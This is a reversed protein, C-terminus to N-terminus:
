SEEETFRVAAAARAAEEADVAMWSTVRVGDGQFLEVTVGSTAADYGSARSKADEIEPQLAEVAAAFEEADKISDWRSDLHLVRGDGKALLVYRDGGWGSAADNTFRLGLIGILSVKMGLREEFPTTLLAAYLEGFTDERLVSWGRPLGGADCVVRRPEDRLDDEWYKVPHLVQETSRPPDRFAREVDSPRALRGNPRVRAQRRLFAQGQYYITVLPKWVVPPAESVAATPLESQAEVLRQFEEADLHEQVWQAMLEMGSGEVVADHALVADTNHALREVTGDLDHYQDDLAHTFEHAITVRALEGALTPMVYFTKSRPDYFGGVQETLVEAIVQELDMDGPILGLLRAIEEDQQVRDEGHLALGRTRVYELFRDRDALRVEVTQKFPRGRLEAIDARITEAESRLRALDWAAAAVPPDQGVGEAGDGPAGRPEAALPAAWTAALAVSALTSSSSLRM